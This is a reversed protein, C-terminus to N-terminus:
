DLLRLQDYPILAKASTDFRVLAGKPFLELVTGVADIEGGKVRYSVRSQRKM